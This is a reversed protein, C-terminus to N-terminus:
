EPPNLRLRPRIHLTQQVNVQCGDKNEASHERENRVLALRKEDHEAQSRHDRGIDHPIMVKYEEQQGHEDPDGPATKVGRYDQPTEDAQRQHLYVAEVQRMSKQRVDDRM